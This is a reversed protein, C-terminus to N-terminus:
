LKSCNEKVKILVLRTINVKYKFKMKRERWVITKYHLFAIKGEEQLTKVVEQWLEKCLAFTKKSFDENIYYSTGKLRNSKQLIRTKDQYNFLKRKQELHLKQEKCLKSLKNKIHHSLNSIYPLKFYHVDSKDKLQNHNSSFKYDLM